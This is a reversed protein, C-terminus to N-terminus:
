GRSTTATARRAARARSVTVRRSVEWVIVLAAGFSMGMIAVGISEFAGATLVTRWAREDALVEPAQARRLVSLAGMLMSFPGAFATMLSFVLATRGLDHRGRTVIDTGLFGIALSAWFYIPYQGFGLRELEPLRSAVLLAGVLAGLVALLTLAALAARTWKSEPEQWASTLADDLLRALERGSRPRASRDVAMAHACIRRLAEPMRPAVTEIPAPSAELAAALVAVVTPREYPGRGSLIEYLITGLAFVDTRADVDDNRGAAQEPAMYAPTGLLAGSQTKTEDSSSEAIAAIGLLAEDPVKAIGWDIVTVEGFDGLVVNSPKLDRHVVGRAHAYGIAEAVKVLVPILALREADSSASALADALTRGPLRRMTYFPRGDRTGREYVPVIGPHELNATVLAEVLFRRVLDTTVTQASLEKLAVSRGLWRDRVEHVCGMGGEGLLREEQYRETPPPMPAQTADAAPGLLRALTPALAEASALHTQALGLNEPPM